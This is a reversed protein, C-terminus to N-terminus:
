NTSDFQKTDLVNSLNGDIQFNAPTVLFIADGVRKIEGDIAFAAGTLFDVIRRAEETGIRDFNVVVAHNALLHRGIENVDSYIRPEYVIIKSQQEATPKMAVVKNRQFNNVAPQSVSQAETEEATYEPEDDGDDMGFFRNFTTGLKEFAM